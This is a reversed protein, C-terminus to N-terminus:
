DAAHGPESVHDKGITTIIMQAARIGAMAKASVKVRMNNKLFVIYEDGDKTTGRIDSIKFPLPDTQGNM